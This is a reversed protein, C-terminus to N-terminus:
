EGTKSESCPFAGRIALVFTIISLKDLNQPNNELYEVWIKTAEFSTINHEELCYLPIAQSSATLVVHMGITGEVFGLCVGAASKDASKGEYTKITELCYKLYDGSKPLSHGGLVPSAVLLSLVLLLLFLKKM